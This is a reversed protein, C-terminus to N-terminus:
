YLWLLGIIVSQALLIYFAVQIAIKIEYFRMAKIARNRKHLESFIYVSEEAFKWKLILNRIKM